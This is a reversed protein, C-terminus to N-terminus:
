LNIMENAAMEKLTVLFRCLVKLGKKEHRVYGKPLWRRRMISTKRNCEFVGCETPNRQILLRGSATVEVQCCGISVISM